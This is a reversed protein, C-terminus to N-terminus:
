LIYDRIYEELTVPRYRVKRARKHHDVLHMVDAIVLKRLDRESVAFVAAPAHKLYVLVALIILVSAILILAICITYLM